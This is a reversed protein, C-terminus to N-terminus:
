NTDHTAYAVNQCAFAPDAERSAPATACGTLGILVSGGPVITM